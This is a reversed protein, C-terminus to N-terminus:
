TKGMTSMLPLFGAGDVMEGGYIKLKTSFGPVNSLMVPCGSLQWLCCHFIKPISGLSRTLEFNFVPGSSGMAKRTIEDSIRLRERLCNDKVPLNATYPYLTFQNGLKRKEWYPFMAMVSGLHLHEPVEVKPHSRRHAKYLASYVATYLIATVSAGSAKKIDKVTDFAIPPSKGCIKTDSYYKVSFVSKDLIYASMIAVFSYPGMIIAKLNVVIKAWLPIKFPIKTPDMVMEAKSDAIFNNVMLFFSIADSYAHNFRTILAYHPKKESAQGTWYKPILLIEWQPKDTSMDKRVLDGTLDMLKEEDAEKTVDWNDLVRIHRRIDFHDDREWCYYGYKDNFICKLRSFDERTEPSQLMNQYRQRIQSLNPTGKIIQYGLILSNCNGKIRYGFVADAGSCITYKGPEHFYKYAEQVLFRLTLNLMTLIVYIPWWILGVALGLILEKGSLFANKTSVEVKPLM